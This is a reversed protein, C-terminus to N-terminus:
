KIYSGLVASAGAPIKYGNDVLWRELGGSDEASLILIDYEGVDYSAEITVHYDDEAAGARMSMRVPASGTTISDLEYEPYPHCPDPDYYEAMRPKTYGDIQDIIANDSVRIQEKKVVTPVPIVIAFEKPSGKYDNAMTMTTLNGRRAIVVRSANNFLPSDDTAVYFGCFAAAQDAVAALALASALALVTRKITNM